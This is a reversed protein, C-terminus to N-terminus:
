PSFHLQWHGQGINLSKASVQEFFFPGAIVGGPGFGLCMIITMVITFTIWWAM